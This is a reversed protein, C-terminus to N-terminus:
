GRTLGTRPAAAEGPQGQALADEIAGRLEDEGVLGEFKAFVDGHADVLFLYPEVPIGYDLVAQVPILNGDDDLRPQLGNETLHLEYPEVIVFGVRDRYDLAVSKVLSVTPGCYGTQCFSPTAFFVLSPQGSTVVEGITREYAGPFPDTDTSILRLEDLSSARPSESRPAAQGVAPTTGSAHVQFRLRESVTSGDPRSATVELGWEGACDLDVNARYMGRQLPTTLFTGEVTAVPTEPDRELAYVSLSTRVEPAALIRYGPDTINYLLRNPGISVLSSVLMPIIAPEASGRM